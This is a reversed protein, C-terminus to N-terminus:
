LGDASDEALGCVNRELNNPPVAVAFRGHGDDSLVKGETATRV